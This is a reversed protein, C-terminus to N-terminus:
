EWKKISFWQQYIRVTKIPLSLYGGNEQKGDAEQIISSNLGKMNISSKRLSKMSKNPMMQLRSSSLKFRSGFTSKSKGIDRENAQLNRMMKLAEKIKAEYQSLLSKRLLIREHWSITYHWNMEGLLCKVWRIDWRSKFLAKVLPLLLISPSCNCVFSAAMSWLHYYCYIQAFAM